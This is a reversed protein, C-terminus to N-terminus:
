KTVKEAIEKQATAHSRYEFQINFGRRRLEMALFDAQRPTITAYGTAVVQWYPIWRHMPKESWEQLLPLVREKEKETGCMKHLTKGFNIM